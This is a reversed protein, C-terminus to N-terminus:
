PSKVGRSEPELPTQYQPSLNPISPDPCKLRKPNFSKSTRLAEKPASPKDEFTHSLAQYSHLIKPSAHQM